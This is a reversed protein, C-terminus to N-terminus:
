ILIFAILLFFLWDAGNFQPEFTASQNIKEQFLQAVPLNLVLGLRPVKEAFYILWGVMSHLNLSSSLINEQLASFLGQRLVKGAFYIWWGVKSRLNM